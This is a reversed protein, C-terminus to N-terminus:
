IVAHHDDDAIQLINNWDNKPSVQLNNISFMQKCNKCIMLFLRKVNQFRQKPDIKYWFQLHQKLDNKSNKLITM